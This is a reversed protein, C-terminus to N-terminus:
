ITRKPHLLSESVRGIGLFKDGNYVRYLGDTADSGIFGGNKYLEASKDNLDLVPIGGLGFDIPKLYQRFDGGNNVLNELFDLKIADKIDFVGSLTRRIMTVTAMAGVTLGIDRALARIYTGRGCRVCFHWTDNDHGILELASIHIKRPSIEPTGGHRAIEYARRGDVHVASFAPPTQMIDGTFRKLVAVVDSESPIFDDRRTQTGTIDLTDTTFGFQVDFLYEKNNANPQEEVFPIMKSARGLAVTLVGSAMPDLTGIHGFTRVGYIRALRGGATRSFVGSDKDLIIWGGNM